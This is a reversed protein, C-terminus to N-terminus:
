VLCDFYREPRALGYFPPRERLFPPTSYFAPSVVRSKTRGNRFTVRALSSSFGEFSNRAYLFSSFLFPSSIVPRDTPRGFLLLFLSPQVKSRCNRSQPFFFKSRFTFPIFTKKEITATRERGREGGGLSM